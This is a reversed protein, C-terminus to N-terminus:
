EERKRWRGRKGKGKREVRKMRKGERFPELNTKKQLHIKLDM